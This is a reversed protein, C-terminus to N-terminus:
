LWELRKAYTVKRVRLMLHSTPNVCSKLTEFLPLKPLSVECLPKPPSTGTSSGSAASVRVKDKGKEESRTIGYEEKKHDNLRHRHRKTFEFRMLHPALFESIAQKKSKVRSGCLM